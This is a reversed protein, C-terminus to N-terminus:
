HDDIVIINMNEVREIFIKPTLGKTLLDAIMFNTNIHKISVRQKQIEEKVVFYKLIM